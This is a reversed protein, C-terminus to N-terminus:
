EKKEIEMLNDICLVVKKILIKGGEYKFDVELKKFM